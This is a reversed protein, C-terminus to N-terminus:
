EEENGLTFSFGVGYIQVNRNKGYLLAYNLLLNFRMRETSLIKLTGNAIIASTIQSEEGNNMLRSFPGLNYSVYLFIGDYGLLAFPYAGLTLGASEYSVRYSSNGLGSFNYATGNLGVELGQWIEHTYSAGVEFGSKVQSAFDGSPIGYTFGLDFRGITLVFLAILVNM